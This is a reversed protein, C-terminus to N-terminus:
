VTGWLEDSFWLKKSFKSNSCEVWQLYRDKTDLGHIGAKLRKIQLWNNLDYYNEKGALTDLCTCLLYLELDNINMCQWVDTEDFRYIYRLEDVFSIRSMTSSAKDLLHAPNSKVNQIEQESLNRFAVYRAVSLGGYTTTDMLLDKM